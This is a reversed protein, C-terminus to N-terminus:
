NYSHNYHYNHYYHHYPLKSSLSSLFCVCIMLKTYFHILKLSKLKTFFLALLNHCPYVGGKEPLAFPKPKRKDKSVWGGENPLAGCKEVKKTCGKRSNKDQTSLHTFLQSLCGISVIKHSFQIHFSTFQSQPPKELFHGFHFLRGFLPRPPRFHPAVATEQSCRFRRWNGGTSKAQCAERVSALRLKLHIQRRAPSRAEAAACTERSINVDDHDDDFCEDDNDNSDFGFM